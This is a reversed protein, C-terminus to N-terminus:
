GINKRGGCAPSRHVFFVGPALDLPESFFRATERFYNTSPLTSEVISKM